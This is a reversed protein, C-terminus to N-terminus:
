NNIFTNFQPIVILFGIFCVIAITIMIIDFTDKIEVIFVDLIRIGDILVQNELDPFTNDRKPGVNLNM